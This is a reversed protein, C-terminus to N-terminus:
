DPSNDPIDNAQDIFGQFDQREKLNIYISSRSRQNEM